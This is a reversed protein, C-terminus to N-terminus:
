EASRLAEHAAAFDAPPPVQFRLPKGSTPHTFGLVAAHLAQRGLALAIAQLEADGPARGYLRDGILPTQTQEALHVRIQHTRGTELRCEVLAARGRALKEVIKVHTVALKGDRVRSTFRLRSRQDRGYYTRIAGARPVGLTLALYSREATHAALEAKLAERARETKAVVLLGSTDKDLRHVIGPRFAGSRDRPDAPVMGFGPRALLGNVLTKSWHGRAPHVVLGAPKVVVVLEDDEYIAEVAVDADPEAASPLRAGPEVEIVAGAAVADRGRRQVGDVVVRGDAIWRQLASRSVDPVLQALVKDLRDRTGEGVV